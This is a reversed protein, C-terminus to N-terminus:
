AIKRPDDEGMIQGYDFGEGLVEMISVLSGTMKQVEDLYVHATEQVLLLGFTFRKGEPTLRWWGRRGGTKASAESEILGWYHSLTLYGGQHAVDALHNKALSPVHVFDEGAERFMWMMTRATTATMTREYVNLPRDCAPCTVGDVCNAAIWRRAQAITTFHPIPTSM